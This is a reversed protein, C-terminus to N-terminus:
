VALEPDDDPDFDDPDFITAPNTTPNDNDVITLSKINISLEKKTYKHDLELLEEEESIPRNSDASITTSTYKPVVFPLIKAIADIRDKPDDIRMLDTAFSKNKLKSANDSNDPDLYPMIIDKLRDRINSYKNKTGPQRGGTKEKGKAFQGKENRMPRKKEPAPQASPEQADPKAGAAKGADRKKKPKLPDTTTNKTM